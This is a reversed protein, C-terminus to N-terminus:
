NSSISMNEILIKPSATKITKFEKQSGLEKINTFLEFITTTLICPEFTPGIKGNKVINGYIQVSIDGTIPNLTTGGTEQYKTIYLGNQLQHFLNKPTSTVQPKEEIYVNNASIKNGYANGTSKKHELLAEKNNYLYTKLIGNKILEKKYTLTAENDFKTYSPYNKNSADEIITLKESFIKKNLMGELCSTKKRIEEKSLLKIFERLIQCAFRESVIVNYKATKLKQQRTNQEINKLVKEVVKEFNIKKNTNYITDDETYTTANIKGTAQISFIEISKTETLDLGTLNELHKKTNSLSYNIELNTIHPYNKTLNNLNLFRNLDVAKLPSLQQHRTKLSKKPLYDEYNSEITQAKAELINLIEEDLYNSVHKVYKDNIKAKIEYYTGSSIIFKRQKDNLIDLDLDNNQFEIIQLETINKKLALAKFAQPTMPTKPEKTAIPSKSKETTVPSKIEKTSMQSKTKETTVPSKIKKLTM